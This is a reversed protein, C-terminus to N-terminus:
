EKAATRAGQLELSGDTERVSIRGTDLMLAKDDIGMSMGLLQTYLISPVASEGKEEEMITSQVTDFQIQCYPCATCIFDADGERSDKLKRRMIDFSLDDNVGLLPAGCCEVRSAWYISQSGTAEV